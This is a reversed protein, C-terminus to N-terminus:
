AARRMGAAESSLAPPFIFRGGVSGDRLRVILMAPEGHTALHAGLRRAASEAAAGSQFVMPNAVDSIGLSWGFPMPRIELVRM